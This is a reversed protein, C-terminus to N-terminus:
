TEKNQNLNITFVAGNNNNSVSLTGGCHEEIITKSMYLGLGTGDKKTKTSFYPEFVKDIINEPIGGANDSIALTFNEIEINISPNEVKKELLIDEANKLINLIVQMVENKYTFIEANSKVDLNIKINSSTISSEVINLAGIVIEELVVKQKTKNNKFFNRFDDITRSLHQAYESINTALELTTEKDLRGLRTKLIISGSTASIASLPQRWQHAIMSLMEGMQAMRSQQLMAKDKDRNKKVETDVQEKLKKQFEDKQKELEKRATIDRYVGHILEESDIYIKTLAIDTWFLTGDTRKYVWEFSHQTNKLTLNAMRLMEKISNQGNEQYKPMLKSVHTNLFEEKSNFGFMKVLAANCDKFKHGKMLLIADSSQEYITQFSNKLSILNNIILYQKYGAKIFTVAFIILLISFIYFIDGGHYLLASVASFMTISVFFAFIHFVSMLTSISGASLTLIVSTLMFINLDPIDYLVSAWILYGYLLATTSVLILMINTFLTIKHTNNAIHELLKKRVFLRLILIIINIISWTIIISKPLHNYVIYIAIMPALFNAAFASAVATEVVMSITKIDYNFNLIKKM